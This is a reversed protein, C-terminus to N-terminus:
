RLADALARELAPFQFAFGLERLRQPEVRQSELLVAAADGFVVRLALEPVPLIAPRHLSRGLARVFEGNTVAAPAVTNVPGRYREDVLTTMIISVLDRLHIWPMFQRGSGAPGGLGLRFLPLMQALAGGGGGLVVGTRLIMVRLGAKEAAGAASTENLLEDGRDGYYGAASASILIRPRPNAEAIARVLEQTLLVRSDRLARRRATTWRGGLISEGALNIVADSRQLAERLADRGSNAALVETDAGLLNRTREISRAWVLGQHGERALAPVLARGILGTAGTVLVRM